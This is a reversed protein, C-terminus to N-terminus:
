EGRNLADIFRYLLRTIRRFRAADGAALAEYRWDILTLRAQKFTM